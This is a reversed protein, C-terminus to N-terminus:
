QRTGTSPFRRGGQQPLIYIAPTPNPSSRSRATTVHLPFGAVQLLLTRNAIHKGLKFGFLFLLSFFAKFDAFPPNSLTFM